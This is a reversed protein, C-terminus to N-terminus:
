VRASMMSGGRSRKMCPRRPRGCWGLRSRGRMSRLGLTATRSEYATYPQSTRSRRNMTPSLCTSEASTAVRQLPISSTSLPPFPYRGSAALTSTPSLLPLHHLIRANALHQMSSASVNAEPDATILTLSQLSPLSSISHLIELSQELQQKQEMNITLTPHQLGQFVSLDVAPDGAIDLSRLSSTSAHVVDHMSVWDSVWRYQLHSLSSALILPRGINDSIDLLELRLSVLDKCRAIFQILPADWNKVRSKSINLTTLRLGSDLVARELEGKSRGEHDDLQEIRLDKIAPCANFIERIAPAADEGAFGGLDVILCRAFTGLHPQTRLRRVLDAAELRAGGDNTFGGWWASDGIGLLKFGLHITCYLHGRAIPLFTRSVLCAAALTQERQRSSSNSAVLGLINDIIEDPLTPKPM